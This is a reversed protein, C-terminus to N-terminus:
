IVIIIRLVATGAERAAAVVPPILKFRGNLWKGSDNRMTELTEWWLFRKWCAGVEVVQSPKCFATSISRIFVSFILKELNQARPPREPAIESPALCHFCRPAKRNDSNERCRPKPERQRKKNLHHKLNFVM